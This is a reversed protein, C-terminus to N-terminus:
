FRQTWAYWPGTIHEYLEESSNQPARYPSYAFGTGDIFGTDALMFRATGDPSREASLVQFVGAKEPAPAQPDSVFDMMAPQATALGARLPLGTTVVLGLTLVVLPVALWRWLHKWKWGAFVLTLGAKIVFVAGLVLWGVAAALWLLFFTGPAAYAVVTLAANVLTLSLFIWGPAGDPRSKPTREHTIDVFTEDM